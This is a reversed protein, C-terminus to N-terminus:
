LLGEFRAAGAAARRPPIPDSAGRGRRGRDPTRTCVCEDPWVAGAEDSCSTAVPVAPLCPMRVLATLNALVVAETRMAMAGLCGRHVTFLVLALSDTKLVTGTRYFSM